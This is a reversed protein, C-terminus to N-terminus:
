AHEDSDNSTLRLTKGGSRGTKSSVSWYEANMENAQEIAHIEMQSFENDKQKLPFFSPCMKSIMKADRWSSSTPAQIGCSITRHKKVIIGKVECHDLCWKIVHNSNM